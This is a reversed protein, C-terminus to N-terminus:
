KVESLVAGFDLKMIGDQYLQEVSYGKRFYVSHTVGDQAHGALSKIMVEPVGMETLKTIFGHRFSHFNKTDTQIGIKRKFGNFWKGFYHGYRDNIKKLDPFIREHDVSQVFEPFKLAGVLIPHLPIVRKSAANKLRKDPTDENIDLYWVGEDTRKLDDIHLQCLEERRCGTFMGLAPIWFQYPYRPKLGTFIAKLDDPSFAERKEKSTKKEKITLVGAPNDRTYRNTEAWAFLSKTYAFNKNISQVSICKEPATNLKIVDGAKMDNYKGTGLFRPPLCQMAEKYERFEDVGLTDVPVNGLLRVLVKGITKYDGQTSTSWAGARINEQQHKRILDELLISGENASSTVSASPEQNAEPEIATQHLPQPLTYKEYDFRTNLHGKKHEIHVETLGARAKLVNFCLRKYDLHSRDIEIGQNALIEDVEQYAAKLDAAIMDDIQLSHLTDLGGITREYSKPTRNIATGTMLIDNEIERLGEEIYGNIIQNVKEKDLKVRNEGVTKEQLWRFLRKVKGAIIWAREKALGIVGTQLSRRIEYRGVISRVAPPVIIRFCYGSKNQIIYTQTM